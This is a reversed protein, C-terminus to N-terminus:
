AMAASVINEVSLGYRDLLTEGDGSEPWRDLALRKVTRGVAREAAVAAV